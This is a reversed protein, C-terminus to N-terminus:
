AVPIARVQYVPKAPLPTDVLAGPYTLGCSTEAQAQTALDTGGLTGGPLVCEYHTKGQYDIWGVFATVVVDQFATVVAGTAPIEGEGSIQKYYYDFSTGSTSALIPVTVGDGFDWYVDDSPAVQLFFSYVVSIGDSDPAGMVDIVTAPSDDSDSPQPSIWFETPAFVVYNDPADTEVRGASAPLLADAQAANGPVSFPPTPPTPAADPPPPSVARVSIKVIGPDHCLGDVWTGPTTSDSTLSVETVDNNIGSFVYLGNALGAGLQYAPPAEPYPSLDTTWNGGPVPTTDSGSYFTDAEASVFAADTTGSWFAIPFTELGGVGSGSAGSIDSTSPEGIVQAYEWGTDITCEGTPTAAAPNGQSAQGNRGDTGTGPCYLNLQSQASLTQSSPQLITLNPATACQTGSGGGTNGNGAAQAACAQGAWVALALLATTPAHLRV